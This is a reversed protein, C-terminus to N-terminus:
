RLRRPDAGDYPVGTTLDALRLKNWGRSSAVGPYGGDPDSCHAQLTPKRRLANENPIPRIPNHIIVLTWSKGIASGLGKGAWGSATTAGSRAEAFRKRCQGRLSM